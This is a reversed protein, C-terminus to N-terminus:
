EFLKPGNDAGSETSDAKVLGPVNEGDPSGPKSGLQSAPKPSSKKNRPKNKTEKPDQTVLNAAARALEQQKLQEPTLAHSSSPTPTAQALNLKGTLSAVQDALEKKDRELDSIRQGFKESEAQQFRLVSEKAAEVAQTRGKAHQEALENQAETFEARLKTQAQAVAEDREQRTYLTSDALVRKLAGLVVFPKTTGLYVVPRTTGLWKWGSTEAITGAIKNGWGYAIVGSALVTGAIKKNTPSIGKLRELAPMFYKKSFESTQFRTQLNKLYEAACADSQSILLTLAMIRLAGKVKYM